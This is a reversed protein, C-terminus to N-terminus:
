LYYISVYISTLTETVVTTSLALQSLPPTFSNHVFDTTRFPLHAGHLHANLICQFPLRLRRQGAVAYRCVVPRYSTMASILSQQHDSFEDRRLNCAVTPPNELGIARNNAWKFIFPFRTRGPGKGTHTNRSLRVVTPCM